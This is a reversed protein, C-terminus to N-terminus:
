KPNYLQVLIAYYTTLFNDWLQTWTVALSSGVKYSRLCNGYGRTEIEEDIFDTHYSYRGISNRCPHSLILLKLASLVSGLM